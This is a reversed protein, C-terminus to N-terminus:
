NLTLTQVDDRFRGDQEINWELVSAGEEGDRTLVLGGHFTVDDESAVRAVRM